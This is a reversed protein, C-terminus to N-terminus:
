DDKKTNQKLLNLLNNKQIKIFISNSIWSITLFPLIFIIVLCRLVLDKVGWYLLATVIAGFLLLSYMSYKCYFSGHKIDNFNTLHSEKIVTLTGINTSINPHKIKSGDFSSQSISFVVNTQDSSFEFVYEGNLLLPSLGDSIKPFHFFLINLIPAILLGIIFSIANWFTYNFSNPIEQIQIVCSTSEFNITTPKKSIYYECGNYTIKFPVNFGSSIHM